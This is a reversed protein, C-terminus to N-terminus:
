ATEAMTSLSTTSCRDCSGLVRGALLVPVALMVDAFRSLFTDAYGGFRTLAAFGACLACALALVEPDVRSTQLSQLEELYQLLRARFVEPDQAAPRYQAAEVIEGTAPDVVDAQQRVQEDAEVGVVHHGM